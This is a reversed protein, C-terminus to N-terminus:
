FLLALVKYFLIQFYLPVGRHRVGNPVNQGEYRPTRLEPAEPVNGTSTTHTIASNLVIQSHKRPRERALHQCALTLLALM